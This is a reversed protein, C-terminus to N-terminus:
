DGNASKSDHYAGNKNSVGDSRPAKVYVSQIFYQVELVPNHQISSVTTTTRNSDVNLISPDM